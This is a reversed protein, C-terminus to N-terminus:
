IAGGGEFPGSYKLYQSLSQITPGNRVSSHIFQGNGVYMGVHNFGNFFILDGPALQDVSSKWGGRAKIEDRQTWTTRSISRGQLRFIYQMLGSCDFGGNAPNNSGWKYSYGKNLMQYANAVPGGANSFSRPAQPKPAAPAAPAPTAAPAQERPASTPASSEAAPAAPSPMTALTQVVDSTASAQDKQAQEELQKKVQENLGDFYTKAQQLKIQVDDIKHQLQQSQEQEHAQKAQLKNHQDVLEESLTKVENISRADESSIADLYHIRSVLDQMDVSGMVLSLLSLPGSKYASRIRKGLQEKATALKQKTTFIEDKTKEISYATRQLEAENADFEKQADKLEAAVNDIEQKASALDSEPTAYALQPVQAFLLTGAIVASLAKYGLSGHKTTYTM